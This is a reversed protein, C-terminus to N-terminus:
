RRALLVRPIGALDPLVRVASLGAREAMERVGPESAIGLELALVGGPVLSAAALPVIAAYAELGTPGPVLAGKPEHDRVEPELTRWEEEPVYPPNSVVAHLPAHGAVSEFRGEVLTVRDAVGHREANRRAVELAEPSRDVATLRWRPCRVSLAIAICGSGTGLDVVRADDPLGASAVAEVLGETEPRPILVAPGVEFSLGDFEVDGTLHQLPRREARAGVLARIAAAVTDDLLDPKRVLVGGRDTGLVHAILVAAERAPSEVGAEALRAISETLLAGVTTGAPLTM